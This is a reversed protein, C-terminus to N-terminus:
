GQDGIDVTLLDQQITRLLLDFAVVGLFTGEPTILPMACTTALLGTNADVYTDTWVPGNSARAALYWPRTRPDFPQIALLADVVAEDDFAMVGGQEFAIYGISVLPNAAVTARLMPIIQQAYAVEVPYRQLQDASPAPAVWVRDATLALPELGYGALAYTAVSEVQQEIAALAQDYLRAKDTARDALTQEAQTQLASIGEQMATERTRTLGALGLWGVLALPPLALSLLLALIKQQISPNFRM